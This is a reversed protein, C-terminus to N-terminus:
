FKRFPCIDYTTTDFFAPGGACAPLDCNPFLWPKVSGVQIPVSQGSPNYAEAKATRTVSATRTGLNRAFFNPLGTRQVTVTIQPNKPDPNSAPHLRDTLEKAMPEAVPTPVLIGIYCHFQCDLKVGSPSKISFHVATGLRLALSHFFCGPTLREIGPV